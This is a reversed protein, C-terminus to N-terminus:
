QQQFGMDVRKHGQAFRLTTQFGTDALSGLGNIYRDVPQSIYRKGFM